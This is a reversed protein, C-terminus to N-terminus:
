GSYAWMSDGTNYACWVHKWKLTSDWWFTSDFRFLTSNM